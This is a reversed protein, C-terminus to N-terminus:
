KRGIKYTREAEEIALVIGREAFATQMTRVPLAAITSKLRRYLAADIKLNLQVREPAHKERPM